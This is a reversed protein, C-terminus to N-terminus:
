MLILAGGYDKIEFNNKACHVKGASKDTEMTDLYVIADTAVLLTTVNLM